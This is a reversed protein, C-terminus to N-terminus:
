EENSVVFNFSRIHHSNARHEILRLMHHMCQFLVETFAPQSKEKGPIQLMGILAVSSESNGLAYYNTISGVAKFM